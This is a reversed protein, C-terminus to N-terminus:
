FGVNVGFSLSRFLPYQNNDIGSTFPNYEPNFGRYKTFYHLNQGALYVKVSNLRLKDTVSAPFNYSLRVTRLSLYDAKEVYQSSTSHNGGGALGQTNRDFNRGNGWDFFVFRPFETVDGENQWSDLLDTTGNINGQSNSNMRARNLNAMVHGLAFDMFIYLEFGKYSVTNGFGGTIDPLVNGLLVQDDFDINGDGNTDQWKSDGGVKRQYNIGNNGTRDWAILDTLGDAEAEATTSYVGLHQWGYVNGLPEGEAIGGFEGLVGGIRNGDLENEPLKIVENSTFSINFNTTWNIDSSKVNVTSLGFELGKFRVTGINETVSGYGSTNPLPRSFLLDETEKVYYDALIEIRNNFLGLDIGVGTQTTTEWGLDLNSVATARAAAQGAYVFGPNVVGQSTFLGVDNNGTQGWSARLKLDSVAGIDFFDEENVRWGVSASPFYGVRNNAGFRSSGDRRLSASLLYKQQFDYSIRGFLGILLDKSRFTSLDGINPAANLTFINDTSGGSGTGSFNFFDTELRSAGVLVTLNHDGFAKLYRLTGEFQIQREENLRSIATRASTFHNAKVFAERFVQSSFYNGTVTARLGDVIDWEGKAGLNLKNISEDNIYNQVYFLPNPLNERAGPALTGDDFKFRTTPAVRMGRQFISSTSFPENSNSRTFNVMTSIKLKDSVKFGVNSQLSFREYGTTKAIGEQNLYATGLYYTVKDSGGDVSFTVNDIQATRYLVDQWDTDQFVLTEGTVPDTMTQYGAPASEGPQLIRTTHIGDPSNGTGLAQPGTGFVSNENLFSRTLGIREIRLYDEAGLLDLENILSSYSSRYSVNFKAQGSKGSKTTILVVGNSARAGYIATAAADKLIEISEIDEPNFDESSRQVGDIIFLPDNSRNISSGGRIRITPSSGPQGTGSSISVGAAKGQMAAEVTTVQLDEIEKADVKAISSTLVKRSQSGYGIVVVENLQSINESLVVEIINRGDVPVEQPIYGTYSFVLTDNSNPIDLAFNGDFDTITGTSTGKVLVNAGILPLGDASGTITGSVGHTQAYGVSTLISFILSFCLCGFLQHFNTTVNQKKM